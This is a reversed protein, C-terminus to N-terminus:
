GENPNGENRGDFDWRRDRGNRRGGQFRQLFGRGGFDSAMRLDSQAGNQTHGGIMQERLVEVIITFYTQCPKTMNERRNAAGDRAQLLLPPPADVSLVGKRRERRAIEKSCTSSRPPTHNPADGCPPPEPFSRRRRSHRGAGSFRTRRAQRREASPDHHASM